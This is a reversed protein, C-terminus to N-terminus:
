NTYKEKTIYVNIINGNIDEAYAHAIESERINDNSVFTKRIYETYPLSEDGGFSIFGLEIIDGDISTPDYIDIYVKINPWSSPVENLYYSTTDNEYDIKVEHYFNYTNNTKIVNLASLYITYGYYPSSKILSSLQVLQNASYIDKVNCGLIEARSKTCCKGNIPMGKNGINYAEEELAIKGM